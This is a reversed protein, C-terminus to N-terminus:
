TTIELKHAHAGAPACPYSLISEAGKEPITCAKQKCLCDPRWDPGWDPYRPFPYNGYLCQYEPYDVELLELIPADTNAASCQMRAAVLFLEGLNGLNGIGAHKASEPALM